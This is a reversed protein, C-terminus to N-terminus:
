VTDITHTDTRLCSKVSQGNPFRIRKQQDHAGSGSETNRRLAPALASVSSCRMAVIPAVCCGSDPNHNNNKNDNNLNIKRSIVIMKFKMM